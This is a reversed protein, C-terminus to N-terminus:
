TMPVILDEPVWKSESLYPSVSLGRPQFLTVEWRMGQRTGEALGRQFQQSIRLLFIHPEALLGLPDM